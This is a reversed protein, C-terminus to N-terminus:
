KVQNETKVHKLAKKNYAFICLIDRSAADRCSPSGPFSLSIEEIKYSSSLCLYQLSKWIVCGGLM